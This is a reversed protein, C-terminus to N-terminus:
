LPPVNSDKRVSVFGAGNIAHLDNVRVYLGLIHQKAGAALCSLNRHPAAHLAYLRMSKFLLKCHQAHLFLQLFLTDHPESYRSM